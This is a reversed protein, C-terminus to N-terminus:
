IVVVLHSNQKWKVTNLSNKMTPMALTKYYVYIILMLHLWLLNPPVTEGRLTKSQTSNYMKQVGLSLMQRPFFVKFIAQHHPVWNKRRKSAWFTRINSFLPLNLALCKAWPVTVRNQRRRWLFNRNQSNTWTFETTKFNLDTFHECIVFNM